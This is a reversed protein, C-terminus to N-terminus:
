RRGVWRLRRLPWTLRWVTSRRMQELQVWAADRQGRVVDLERRLAALEVNERVDDESAASM